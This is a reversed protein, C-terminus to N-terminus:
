YRILEVPVEVYELVRCTHRVSRPRFREGTTITQFKYRPVTLLFNVKRSSQFEVTVPLNKFSCGRSDFFAVEGEQWSDDSVPISIAQDITYALRGGPYNYRASSHQKYSGNIKIFNVVTGDQSNRWRGSLDGAFVSTTGLFLFIGLLKM